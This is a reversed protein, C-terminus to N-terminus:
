RIESDSLPRIGSSAAYGTWLVRASNSRWSLAPLSRAELAHARETSFGFRPYYDPHGLVIVIREGRSRLLDLGHVILQGGIGQSQHEPLVAMPALAVASLSGGASDIWMRSFLIHGAIRQNLEAVLSVSRRRRHAPPRGPQSRGAAFAAANVSHVMSREDAAPSEPRVIVSEINFM